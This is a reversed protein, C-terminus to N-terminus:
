GVRKLGQIRLCWAHLPFGQVVVDVWREVLRGSDDYQLRKEKVTKPPEIAYSSDQGWGSPLQSFDAFSCLCSQTVSVWPSRAHKGRLAKARQKRTPKKTRVVQCTLSSLYITSASYPLAM